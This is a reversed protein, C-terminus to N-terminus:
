KSNLKQIKQKRYRKQVSKWSEEYFYCVLAEFPLGHDNALFKEFEPDKNQIAASITGIVDLAVAEDYKIREWGKTRHKVSEIFDPMSLLLSVDTLFKIKSIKM